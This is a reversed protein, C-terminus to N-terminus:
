DFSLVLERVKQLKTKENDTQEKSQRTKPKTKPLNLLPESEAVPEPPSPTQTTVSDPKVKRIYKRKAPKDPLAIGEMKSLHIKSKQHFQYQSYTKFEKDNCIECTFIPMYVIM